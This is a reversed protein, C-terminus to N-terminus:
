KRPLILHRVDVIEYRNDGTWSRRPFYVHRSTGDPNMEFGPDDALVLVTRGDIRTVDTLRLGLTFGAGDKVLVTLDRTADREPINGDVVLGNVDSGTEKRLVGQIAGEFIGEGSLKANGKQLLSGGVLTMREVDGDRVRVFGIRGDLTIGEVAMRKGDTSHLLYDTYGEGTIRLALGDSDNGLREVSRLFPTEGFPELVNVFVSSLDKGERRHILAPMTNDDLRGESEEARRVSPMSGFLLEGDPLLALSPNYVSHVEGGPSQEVRHEGWTHGGDRSRRAELWCECKLPNTEVAHVFLLSGDHLPLISGSIGRHARDPDMPVVVNDEFMRRRASM